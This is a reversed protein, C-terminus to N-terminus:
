GDVEMGEAERDAEEEEKRAVKATETMAHREAEGDPRGLVEAIARVIELQTDDEPFRQEMEQVITNLNEPKTPRLNLIM